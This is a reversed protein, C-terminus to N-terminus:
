VRANQCKQWPGRFIYFGREGFLTELPSSGCGRFIVGDIGIADLAIKMREFIKENETPIEISVSDIIWNYEVIRKFENMILAFFVESVVSYEKNQFEFSYFIYKDPQELWDKMFYITNQNTNTPCVSITNNDFSVSPIYEEKQEKLYVPIQNNEQDILFCQITFTNTIIIKLEITLNM